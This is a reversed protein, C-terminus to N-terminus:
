PCAITGQGLACALTWEATSCVAPTFTSLWTPIHPLVLLGLGRAWAWAWPNRSSTGQHPSAWVLVESALEARPGEETTASHM